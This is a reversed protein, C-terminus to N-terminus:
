SHFFSSWSEQKIVIGSKIKTPILIELRKEDLTQVVLREHDIPKNNQLQTLYVIGDSKVIYRNQSFVKGDGGMKTMRGDKEFYWFEGKHAASGDVCAERYKQITWKGLLQAKMKIIEERTKALLTAPSVAMLVIVALSFLPNSKKM